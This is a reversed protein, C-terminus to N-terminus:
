FTTFKLQNNCEVSRLKPLNFLVLRYDSETLSIRQVSPHNAVSLQFPTSYCEVIDIIKLNLSKAILAGVEKVPIYTKLLHLEILETMSRHLVFWNSHEVQLSEM